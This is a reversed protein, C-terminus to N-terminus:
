VYLHVTFMFMEHRSARPEQDKRNCECTTKSVGDSRSCTKGVQTRRPQTWGLGEIISGTSVSLWIASAGLRVASSQERAEKCHGTTDKVSM